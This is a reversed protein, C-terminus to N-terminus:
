SGGLLFRSVNPAGYNKQMFKDFIAVKKPDGTRLDNLIPEADPRSLLAEIAKQANTYNATPNEQQFAQGSNTLLGGSEQAYAAAHNQQDLDRQANVVTQAILARMVQPSQNGDPSLIGMNQFATLSHQGIAHTQLGSTLAKYKEELVSLSDADSLGPDPIGFGRATTNVVNLIGRRIDNGAGPAFAGTEQSHKAVLDLLNSRAASAERAGKAAQAYQDAIGQSIAMNNANQPENVAATHSAPGYNVGAPTSYPTTGTSLQNLPTWGPQGKNDATIAGAAGPFPHISAQEMATQERQRNLIANQTTEYTGAGAGVGQLIASGLYRSPSSAMTGIGSLLPVLWDQNRGMWDQNATRRSLEEPSGLIMPRDSSALGPMPAPPASSPAPSPMPVPPAYASPAVGASQPAAMVPHDRVAVTPVPSLGPSPAPPSAPQPANVPLADNTARSLDPAAANQDATENLWSRASTLPSHWWDSASLGRPTLSDTSPAVVSQGPALYDEVQQPPLAQSVTDPGALVDGGLLENLTPPGGDAYGARGGRKLFSAVTAALQVAQGLDNNQGVSPTNPAKPMVPGSPQATQAMGMYGNTGNSEEYPVAVGGGVAYSPIIGPGSYPEEPSLMGGGSEGGAGIIGQTGVADKTPSAGYLGQEVGNYIKGINQAGAVGQNLASLVSPQQEIKPPPNYSLGRSQTPKFGSAPGVSGGVGPQNAYMAEHQALIDAFGGDAFGAVGGNRFHGREAADKTAADYDVTKYGGALGVAGPHKHEVDQAILGIHTGPKGKYRYRYITQGDFAKGVPEVGEKLREDSFFSSPQQTTTTQGSQAGIGESINALEGLTQFPYAQQQLFQNYLASKGAQETQQQVGGAAIQAQAGQLGSTQAQNGINALQAGAGSLRALNAQDASLQAGQQQQAVGQAQTYGSQLLAANSQNNALNQEYALNAGAIGGRDGGFASVTSPNVLGSQQQKNLFNEGAVQAGYVDGLFPSMYKNTDLTGLNAPGGGQQTDYTAQGYYPQAANAYATAQGIGTQQASNIPAVFANPDTSYQQFPHNPQGNTTGMLQNAQSTVSQYQALVQPPVQVNSTATSTKGGM